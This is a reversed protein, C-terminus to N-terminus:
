DRLGIAMPALQIQRQLYQGGGGVDNWRRTQLFHPNHSLLQPENDSGGRQLVSGLASM